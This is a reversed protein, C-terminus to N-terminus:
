VVGKIIKGQNVKKLGKIKSLRRKLYLTLPMSLALTCSLIASYVFHTQPIYEIVISVHRRAEVDVLWGNAFGNVMFHESVETGDVYLRWGRDFNQLLVLIFSGDASVICEYRVPSVRRWRFLKPLKLRGASGLSGNVFVSRRLESWTANGVSMLLDNLSSYSLISDAVYLMPLAHEVEYVILFASDM